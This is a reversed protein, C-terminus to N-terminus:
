ADAGEGKRICALMYALRGCTYFRYEPEYANLSDPAWVSRHVEQENDYCVGHEWGPGIPLRLVVAQNALSVGQDLVELCQPSDIHELVDGFIVVDYHDLAPLLEEAKGIHLASYLWQQHPQIYDKFCEVGDIRTLWDSKKFRGQFVDLYMRCLFGWLGFGIGVDLVSRPNVETVWQIGQEIGQPISVPV